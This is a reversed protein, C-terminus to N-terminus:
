GGTMPPFIAIERADGILDDHDAHDQDLAVRIVNSFEFAHAFEEGRGKLWDLLDSVTSVSGPLAVYEQEIGVRERIWAFYLLKREM